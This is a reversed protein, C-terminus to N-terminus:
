KPKAQGKLKATTTSASTRGVLNTATATITMKASKNAPLAKL